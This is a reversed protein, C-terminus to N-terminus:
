REHKRTLNGLEKLECTHSAKHAALRDESFFRYCRHCPFTAVHNSKRRDSGGLWRTTEGQRGLLKKLDTVLAYHRRYLFVNIERHFNQNAPPARRLYVRTAREGKRDTGEQFCHVYVACNNLREFDHVVGPVFVAPEDPSFMTLDFGELTKYRPKWGAPEPGGNRPNEIYQNLRYAHRKKFDGGIWSIVCLPFCYYDSNQINLCCKKREIEMPLHVHQGGLAIPAPPIVNGFVARIQEEGVRRLDAM